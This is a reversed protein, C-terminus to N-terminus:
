AQRGPFVPPRGIDAVAGEPLGRCLLETRRDFLVADRGDLGPWLDPDHIPAGLYARGPEPWTTDVVIGDSTACWAHEIEFDFGPAVAWGEAYVLGHQEATWDANRFCRRAPLPAIHGPLPAPTFLRGQDLLLEAISQWRFGAREPCRYTACHEIAYALLATEADGTNTM